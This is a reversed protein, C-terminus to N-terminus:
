ELSDLVKYYYELDNLTPKSTDIQTELIEESFNEFTKKDNINDDNIRKLTTIDLTDFPNSAEFFNAGQMLVQVRENLAKADEPTEYEINTSQLPENVVTNGSYHIIAVFFLLLLSSRFFSTYFATNHIHANTKDADLLIRKDHDFHLDYTKNLEYILLLVGCIFIFSLVIYKITSGQTLSLIYLVHFLIAFIYGEFWKRIVYFSKKEHHLLFLELQKLVNVNKGKKYKLTFSISSPHFLSLAYFFGFIASSLIQMFSLILIRYTIDDLSSAGLNQLEYLFYFINEVFAFGLAAIVHFEISDRISKIAKQGFFVAALHKYLELFIAVIFLTIPISSMSFSSFIDWEPNSKKLIQLGWIFVIGILGAFYVKLATKLSFSNKRFFYLFYVLTPLASLLFVLLTMGLNDFILHFFSDHQITEQPM